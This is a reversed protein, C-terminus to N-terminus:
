ECGLARSCSLKEAGLGASDSGCGEWDEGAGREEALAVRGTVTLVIIKRLVMQVM